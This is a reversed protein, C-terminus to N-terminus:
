PAGIEFKICPLVHMARGVAPSRGAQVMVASSYAGDGLFRKSQMHVGERQQTGLRLGGALLLM